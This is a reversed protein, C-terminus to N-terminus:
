TETLYIAHLHFSVARAFRRFRTQDEDTLVQGHRPGSERCLYEVLDTVRIPIFHERDRRDIQM